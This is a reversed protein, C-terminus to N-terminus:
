TYLAFFKELYMTHLCSQPHNGFVVGINTM